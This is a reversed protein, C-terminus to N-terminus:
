REIQSSIQGGAPFEEELQQLAAEDGPRQTEWRHRFEGASDWLMTGTIWIARRLAYGWRSLLVIPDQRKLMCLLASLLILGTLIARPDSLEKM